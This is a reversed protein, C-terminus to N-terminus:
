PLFATISRWFKCDTKRRAEAAGSRDCPTRIENSVREVDRFAERRGMVRKQLSDILSRTLTERDLDLPLTMGGAEPLGAAGAETTQVTRVPAVGAPRCGFLPLCVLAVLAIKSKLNQIKSQNAAGSAINRLDCVDQFRWAFRRPRCDLIWFGFDLIPRSTKM